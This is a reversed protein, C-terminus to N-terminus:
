KKNMPADDIMMTCWGQPKANANVSGKKIIQIKM